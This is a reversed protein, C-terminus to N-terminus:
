AKPVSEKVDMNHGNLGTGCSLLLGFWCLVTDSLESSQTQGRVQYTGDKRMVSTKQLAGKKHM